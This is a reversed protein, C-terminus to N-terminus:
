RSIAEKGVSRLAGEAATIASSWSVESLLGPAAVSDGCLFVDEGRQIAPRDRWSTGPYDLAGSRGDLLSRRRWTERDRWGPYGLDCLAEARTVGDALSEDPHLGVQAQVLRHGPPALSPDPYSFCEVWGSGDLDSIVFADGRRAELGLDLSAVRGSPWALKEDGLLRRAAPLETAVIVPGTRPLETIASGTHVRVGVEVARQGLRDALTTWGGPVYRAAPPVKTARRAVGAAFSASLAGPDHTFTGVGTFRSLAEAVKPGAKGEAWRHFSIDGPIDRSRVLQIGRLLAPPPVRHLSGHHRLFLGRLPPRTAGAVLNRDDLWRWLPGDAYIVHPGFNAVYPGPSSRARGGLQNHAEHLDVTAGSEAARIAAVLGALGGGVVTIPSSNPTMGM